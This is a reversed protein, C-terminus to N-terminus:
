RQARAPGSMEVVKYGLEGRELTFEREAFGTCEREARLIRTWDTAGPVSADFYSYRVRLRTAGGSALVKRKTVSAIEPSPCQGDEEVANQAYYQAIEEALRDQPPPLSACGVPGLTTALGLWVRAARAGAARAPKEDRARSTRSFRSALRAALM